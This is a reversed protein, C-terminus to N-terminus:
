LAKSYKLKQLVSFPSSHFLSNQDCQCFILRGTDSCRIAGLNIRVTNNWVQGKLHESDLVRVEVVNPKLAVFGM